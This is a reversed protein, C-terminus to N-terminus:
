RFLDCRSRGPRSSGRCSYRKEGAGIDNFQPGCRTPSTRYFGLVWKRWSQAGPPSATSTRCGSRARKRATVLVEYRRRAQTSAYGGDLTRRPALRAVGLTMLIISASELQRCFSM